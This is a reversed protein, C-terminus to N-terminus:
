VVTMNAKCKKDRKSSEKMRMGVAAAFNILSWVVAMDTKCKKDEKSLPEMKMEVVVVVAVIKEELMGKNDLAPIKRGEVAFDYMLAWVVAMNM